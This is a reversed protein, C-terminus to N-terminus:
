VAVKRNDNRLDDFEGCDGTWAGARFDRYEKPLWRDKAFFIQPTCGPCGVFKCIYRTPYTGDSSVVEDMPLRRGLQFELCKVIVAFTSYLPRTKGSKLKTIASKSLGTDLALRQLGLTSYRDTHLMLAAVRNHFRCPRRSAAVSRNVSSM